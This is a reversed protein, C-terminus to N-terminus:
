RVDARHEELELSDVILHEGDRTLNEASEARVNLHINDM